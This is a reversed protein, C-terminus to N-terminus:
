TFLEFVWGRCRMNQKLLDSNLVFRRAFYDPRYDSELLSLQDTGQQSVWTYIASIFLLGSIVPNILIMYGGQKRQYFGREYVHQFLLSVVIAMYSAKTSAFIM